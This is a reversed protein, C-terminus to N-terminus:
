RIFGKNISSIKYVLMIHEGKEADVFDLFIELAASGFLRTAKALVSSLGM